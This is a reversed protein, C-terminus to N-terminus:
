ILLRADDDGCIVVSACIPSIFSPTEAAWSLCPFIRSSRVMILVAAAISCFAALSPTVSKNLGPFSHM